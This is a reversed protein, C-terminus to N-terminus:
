PFRQNCIGANHWDTIVSFDQKPITGSIMKDMKPLAMSVYSMDMYEIEGSELFKRPAIKGDYKLSARLLLTLLSILYTASVWFLPSVVAYHDDDLKIIETRDALKCAEEFWNVVKQMNSHNAQLAERDEKYGHYDREDSTAKCVKIVLYAKDTFCGTKVAKYGYRCYPKGTHESYVQDNLYDKCPGIPGVTELIGNDLKCFAFGLGQQRGEGLRARTKNDVLKYSM